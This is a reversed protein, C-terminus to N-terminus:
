SLFVCLQTFEIIFEAVTQCLIISIQWGVVSFWSGCVRDQCKGLSAVTGLEYGLIFQACSKSFAGGGQNIWPGFCWRDYQGFALQQDM